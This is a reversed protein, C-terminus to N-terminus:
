KWGHDGCSSAKMTFLPGRIERLLGEREWGRWVQVLSQRGRGAQNKFARLPLEVGWVGMGLRVGAPDSNCLLSPIM